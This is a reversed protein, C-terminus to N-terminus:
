DVQQHCILPSPAFQVPVSTFSMLMGGALGAQEVDGAIRIDPLRRLLSRVAIRIEARALQQGQCIHIGGGFAVHANRPLNLDFHEPDPFQNPDRNVSALNLMVRDGPAFQVGRIVTDSRVSRAFLRLPTTLRLSEEIARALVQDDAAVLEKLNSVALVHQLVGALGAATSHHGGLLYGLMVSTVMEADVAHGNVQGQALATLHDSRPSDRRMQLQRAIFAAFSQWNEAFVDTGISTFMASALQQVEMAEQQELGVMRGIVLAPLLDCYEDALNAEGRSAFGDILMDALLIMTPEFARVARPSLVGDMLSRMAGHLPPDCELAPIKPMGSVPIAVGGTTMFRDSDQLVARVDDYRNIYDFGGFRDSRAVPCEERMRRYQERVMTAPMSGDTHDFSKARETATIEFSM